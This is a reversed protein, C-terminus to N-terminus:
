VNRQITIEPFDRDANGSARGQYRVVGIVDKVHDGLLSKAFTREFHDLALQRGDERKVRMLAMLSVVMQNLLYYEILVIKVADQTLTASGPYRRAILEFFVTLYVLFRDAVSEPMAGEIDPDALFREIIPSADSAFHFDSWPLGALRDRERHLWESFDDVFEPAEAVEHEKLFVLVDGCHSARTQHVGFQLVQLRRYQRGRALSALVQPARRLSTAVPSEFVFAGAELELLKKQLYEELMRYQTIHYPHTYYHAIDFIRQNEPTEERFMIVPGTALALRIGLEFMVNPNAQTGPLDCLVVDAEFLSRIISDNILYDDASRSVVYRCRFGDYREIAGKINTRFFEDLDDKGRTPTKTFPMIVFISKTPRDATGSDVDTTM